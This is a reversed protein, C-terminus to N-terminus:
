DHTKGDVEREEKEGKKTKRGFPPPLPCSSSSAVLQGREKNRRRRRKKRDKEGRGTNGVPCKKYHRKQFFHCKTLGSTNEKTLLVSFFDQFFYCKQKEPM